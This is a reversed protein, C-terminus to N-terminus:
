FSFFIREYNTKFSLFSVEFLIKFNNKLVISNYRTYKINVNESVVSQRISRIM